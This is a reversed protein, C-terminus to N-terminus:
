LERGGVIQSGPDKVGASLRRDSKGVERGDLAMRIEPSIQLGNVRFLPSLHGCDPKSKELLCLAACRAQSAPPLM